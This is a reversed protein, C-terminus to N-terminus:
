KRPLLNGESIVANPWFAGFIVQCRSLRRSNDLFYALPGARIVDKVKHPVVKVERLVSQVSELCYLM